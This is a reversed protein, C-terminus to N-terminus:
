PKDTEVNPPGYSEDLLEVIYRVKQPAHRRGLETELQIACGPNATVVIEAGTALANDVKRAGLRGAMEPQTINYVGASGCCLASEAMELVKLQPIAALLKRPQATIRQAHALHCPEQFTVTRPLPRLDRTNLPISALFEHVDRVKDAFAMARAAWAPDDALLHGYEKLTSGCGAANIVIADLTDLGAAEFAAINARALARGGDLDGGHTHLAGCCGQGAPFVVECGNRQLVRVTAGHVDAFATAMVCGSLMAVRYQRAAPAPHAQGRPVVFRASMRPLMHEMEAMGLLKLVGLKRALAQLGSRQYFRLLGSFARFLGMDRFLRGFVFGRVLRERAGMRPGATGAAGEARLRQVQVRSAELIGGYKVGSPCVAECARCNLCLGMQDVFVDSALSIAGDSVGRMLYIRGRPSAMELLTERYTPCSPLCLGCHVCSNIVGPDPSDAGSFGLLVNDTM